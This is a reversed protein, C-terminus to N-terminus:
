CDKRPAATSSSGSSSSSGGSSSSGPTQAPKAYSVESTAKSSSTTPAPAPAGDLELSKVATNRVTPVVPAPAPASSQAAAAQAAASAAAPAPSPSPSSAPSPEAAPAPSPSPSAASETKKEDSSSGAAPAPAPSSASAPSPSPSSSAPAPSPSPSPSASTTTTGSPAPAPSASPATPATVTAPAPAPTPAVYTPPTLTRTASTTLGASALSNSLNSVSSTSTGAGTGTISPTQTVTNIIVQAIETELVPSVLTTTATPVPATSGASALQLGRPQLAELGTGTTGVSALSGSVAGGSSLIQFSQDAAPRFGDLSSVVMQGGLQMSGTANVRDFSAPGTGGLEIELTTGPGLVLNGEVTIAGPSFGPSLVANSLNLNGAFTGSGRFEGGSVTGGSGAGLLGTAGGAAGLTTTGATQTFTGTVRTDGSSVNFAGSNVVSALTNSGSALVTGSNSNTLASSLATGALTLQGQNLVTGAGETKVGSLDLASNVVVSGTNTLGGLKMGEGDVVLRAANSLSVLNLAKLDYTVQLGSVAPIAVSAVNDGDPLADWNAVDSWNGSAKGTWNSLPRQTIRAPSTTVSTVTYNRGGNGDELRYSPNVSVFKASVVDKSNFSQSLGSLSDGAFVTGTVTPTLSSATSGDYVKADSVASLTLAAPTITAALGTTPALVYNSALGTVTTASDVGPETSV